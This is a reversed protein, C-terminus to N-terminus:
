GTLAAARAAKAQKAGVAAYNAIPGYVNEGTIWESSDMGSNVEIVMPRPIQNELKTQVWGRIGQADAKAGIRDLLKGALFGKVTQEQFVDVGGFDLGVARVAQKAVEIQRESPKVPDPRGGLAVNARFEGKKQATRQLSTLRRLEGGPEDAGIVIRLDRGRANVLEQAMVKPSRSQMEAIASEIADRRSVKVVGEGHTGVADKVILGTIADDRFLGKSREVSAADTIEEWRAQSVGHEDFQKATLVKDRSQRLGTANQVVFTGDAALQELKAPGVEPGMAGDYMIAGDLRPMEQGYYTYAGKGAQEVGEVNLIHPRVGRAALEEYLRHQELGPLYSFIAVNTLDAGAKADAVSASLTEVPNPLHLVDPKAISVPLADSMAVKPALAFVQDTVKNTITSILSM